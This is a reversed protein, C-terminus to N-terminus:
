VNLKSDTQCGACISHFQCQFIEIDSRVIFHYCCRHRENCGCISNFVAACFRHEDIDFRFGAIDIRVQYFFRDSGMGLSHHGNVKVALHAIHFFDSLDGVGISQFNDFIAGMAQFASPVANLGAFEAVHGAITKICCFAQCTPFATRHGTMVLITIVPHAFGAQMSHTFIGSVSIGFEIFM